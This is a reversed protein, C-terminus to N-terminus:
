YFEFKMSQLISGNLVVPFRELLKVASDRDEFKREAYRDLRPIDVYIFCTKDRQVSIRIGCDLDKELDSYPGDFYLSSFSYLGRALKERFLKESELEERKIQEKKIHLDFDRSM